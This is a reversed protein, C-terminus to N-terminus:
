EIKSKTSYKKHLDIIKKAIEYDTSEAIYDSSLKMFSIFEMLEEGKMGTLKTVIEKNFKRSSLIQQDKAAKVEYYDRKAKHKKSFKKTFYSLPLTLTPWFNENAGFKLNTEREYLKPIEGKPKGPTVGFPIISDIELVGMKVVERKFEHEDKPLNYVQIEDLQIVEPTLLVSQFDIKEIIRFESKFGVFTIKLTDGVKALIRFKGEESSFDVEDNTINLIHAGAISEYNESSYVVGGIHNQCFSSFHIILLLTSLYYIRM